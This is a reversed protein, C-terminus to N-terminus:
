KLQLRFCAAVDEPTPDTLGSPLEWTVAGWSQARSFARYVYKDNASESRDPLIVHIRPTPLPTDVTFAYGGRLPLVVWQEFSAFSVESQDSEHPLGVLQLTRHVTAHNGTADTIKVTHQESNFETVIAVASKKFPEVDELLQVRGGVRIPLRRVRNNHQVPVARDIQAAPPHFPQVDALFYHVTTPLQQLRYFDHREKEQHSAVLVLTDEPPSDRIVSLLQTAHSHTLVGTRVNHIFAKYDDEVGFPDKLTYTVMGGLYADGYQLQAPVDGDGLLVVPMGGFPVDSLTTKRRLVTDVLCMLRHPVKHVADIVLVKLPKVKHQAKELVDEALYRRSDPPLQFYKHITQGGAKNADMAQYTLLAPAVGAAVLQKVLNRALDTKGTFSGAHTHTHAHMNISLLCHYWFRLQFRGCQMLLPPMSYQTNWPMVLIRM